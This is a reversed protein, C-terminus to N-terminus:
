DTKSQRSLRLVQQNSPEHYYKKIRKFGNKEYFSKGILNLDFVEVELESHYQSMHNVLATGVGKSQKSPNVFLGGIENQIMSIFGVVEGDKELVWTDSNPLYTEIMAKKVLENFDTSLFSHAILIAQEWITMLEPIESEKYKRIM